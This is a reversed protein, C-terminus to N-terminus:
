SASSEDRAAYKRLGRKPRDVSTLRPETMIGEKAARCQTYTTHIAAELDKSGHSKPTDTTTTGGRNTVFLM